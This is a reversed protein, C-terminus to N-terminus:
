KKIKLTVLLDLIWKKHIKYFLIMSSSVFIFCFIFLSLMESFNVYNIFFYIIMGLVFHAALIGYLQAGIKIINLDIIYATIYIYVISTLFFLSAMFLMVEQLKYFEILLLITILIIIKSSIEIITYIRLKKRAMLIRQCLSGIPFFSGIVALIKLYPVMPLWKEGLLIYIIEYANFFIVTNVMAVLALTVRLNRVLLQGLLNTDDQYKVLTPYIGKTISNNLIENPTNILSQGKTYLGLIAPTYFKGFLLNLGQVYFRSIFSIGLMRLGFGYLEIMSKRSFSFGPKYKINRILLFSYIAAYAIHQWILALVGFGLYALTIGLFFSLLSAPIRAITIKKLNLEKTAKAIQIISLSDIILVIAQLRIFFALDKFDYYDEIYPAAIFLLSYLFISIGLNLWFVTAFDEKSADKKQIIAERLGGDVFITVLLFFVNVIALVGFVRPELLRALIISLFFAVVKISLSEIFSWKVNSSMQREINM